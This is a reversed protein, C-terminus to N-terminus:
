YAKDDTEAFTFTSTGPKLEKTAQDLLMFIMNYIEEQTDYEKKEKAKEARVLPAMPLDGYTDTMTSMLYAFYIRTIYYANKYKDFDVYKFIRTLTKYEAVRETYFHDWRTGSWGETYVYNPSNVLFAPNNAWFYGCYIDHTLNTARQYDNVLGEYTFTKFTSGIENERLKLAALDEASTEDALDISAYPNEPNPDDPDGGDNGHEYAPVYPNKNLATFGDTCGYQISAILLFVLLTVIKNKM